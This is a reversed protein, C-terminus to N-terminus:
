LEFIIGEGPKSGFDGYRMGGERRVWGGVEEAEWNQCKGVNPISGECSWPGRRGNIDLLVM